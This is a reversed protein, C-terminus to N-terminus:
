QAEAFRQLREVGKRLEPMAAAYSLRIFSPIGFASGPVVALLEEDLLQRVIAADDVGRRRTLESADVLAYFAGAPLALSLTPIANIAKHLFQRREDFSHIRRAREETFDGECVAIAAHQSITCPNGLVQSQIRGAAAILDVPGALFALRWGTFSHSKTAGNVVLTHELDRDYHAPSVHQHGPYVMGGYIEDSVIWLGHDRAARVLGEVQEHTPVAGSPNNPFNLIVGRAGHEAAAYALQAGTHVFGQEPVAPLTIPVGGAVRVLDPYSVWHPALLLVPDGPEVLATLAMHLASKAGSSAMVQEPRLALDFERSFWTTAARRLEPMGSTATYRTKGTEIAEIGAAAVAPPTPFDPEGASLSVVDKGESRLQAARASIALTVSEAVARARQNPALRAM